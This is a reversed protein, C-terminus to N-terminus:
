LGELSCSHQEVHQSEMFEHVVGVGVVTDFLGDVAPGFVVSLCVDLSNYIYHLVIIIHILTPFCSEM